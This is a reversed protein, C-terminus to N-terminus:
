LLSGTGGDYADDFVELRGMLFVFVKWVHYSLGVSLWPRWLGWWPNSQRGVNVPEAALAAVAVEMPGSAELFM